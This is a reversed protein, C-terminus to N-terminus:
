CSWMRRRAHSRGCHPRAFYAPLTKSLDPGAHVHACYTSLQALAIPASYWRGCGDMHAVLLCAASQDGGQDALGKFLNADGAPNSALRSYVASFRAKKSRGRFTKYGLKTGWVLSVIRGFRIGMPTRAPYRWRSHAAGIVATHPLVPHALKLPITGIIPALMAAVLIRM